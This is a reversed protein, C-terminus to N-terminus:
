FNFSETVITAKRGGADLEEERALIGSRVAREFAETGCVFVAESALVDAASTDGAEVPSSIGEITEPLNFTATDDDLSTTLLSRRDFRAAKLHRFVIQVNRNKSNNRPPLAESDDSSSSDGKQALVTYVSIPIVSDTEGDIVPSLARKILQRVIGAEDPRCFVAAAVAVSSYSLDQASSVLRALEQLHALLPTVGIGNVVYTLRLSRSSDPADKAHSVSPIVFEGGIGLLPAQVNAKFDIPPLPVGHRFADMLTTHGQLSANGDTEYAVRARNFLQSTVAGGDVRRLTTTLLMNGPDAEDRDIFAITWSRVGDDNLDKEGGKHRAMHTYNKLRSDAHSSMDMIVHQGARIDSLSSAGADIPVKWTFSGLNPSHIQVRTLQANVAQGGAFQSSDAGTSVESSLPKVPPNYPSWGVRTDVKASMDRPAMAQVTLPLADRVLSFGDVWIKTIQSVGRIEKKADEGFLTEATGTIHLVDTGRGEGAFSFRPIALAAVPDTVMNGISEMFRNGSYDPLVICAQGKEEDFYTRLFGPRGGRHNCCLRADDGDSRYGLLAEWQDAFAPDSRPRPTHRTGLFVIDAQQIVELASPPLPRGKSVNFEFSDLTSAPPTDPLRQLNRVNIYKPCNGHSSDVGITLEAQNETTYELGSVFGTLKNRRRNQLMVGVAAVLPQGSTHRLIGGKSAPSSDQDFGENLPTGEPVHVTITLGPEEVLQKDRVAVVAVPGAFGRRGDSAGLLSVWPRNQSDLTTLPLFDLESFFQLYHDDIGDNFIYTPPPVANEWGQNAQAILSGPHWTSPVPM